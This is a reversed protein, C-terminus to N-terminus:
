YVRRFHQLMHLFELDRWVIFVAIRFFFSIVYTDPVIGLDVVEYGMGELVAQLSPRNTDFIEGWSGKLNSTVDSHLDVIENGTSLIAVM